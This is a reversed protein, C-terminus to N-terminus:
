FVFALAVIALDQRRSEEAPFFDATSEDRRLELFLKASEHAQCVWTATYSELKQAKGSIGGEGDDFREARVTLANRGASWRLWAATAKWDADPVAQRQQQGRYSEVALSWTPSIEAQLILDYLSRPLNGDPTPEDGGIANFTATVKGVRRSLKLGACKGDNYDAIQQWGNLAHLEITTNEDPTYVLKVGTQYFPSLTALWSHSYNWNTHPLAGEFGIHSPFLGAEVLLDGKKYSVSAQYVNRFTDRASPEEAAHITEMEDGAALVLTFGWPAPDKKLELGALDLALEGERTAVTGLGAFNRGTAPQDGAATAYIDVFGSIKIGNWDAAAAPLALGLAAFLIALCFFIALCPSPMPRSYRSRSLRPSM